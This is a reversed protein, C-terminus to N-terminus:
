FNKKYLAKSQAQIDKPSNPRDADSDGKFLVLSSSSKEFHIQVNEQVFPEFYTPIITKGNHEKKNFGIDLFIKDNVGECLCDIYEYNRLYMLKEFADGAKGLKEIDGIFDILSLIKRDEHSMERMIVLGLLSKSHALLKYTKYNFIPNEFYRRKIYHGSKYPLNDSIKLSYLENKIESFNYIEKLYLDTPSKAKEITDEIFDPVAIKFDKFNENLMYYHSMVGVHRNFFKKVLPLWTKSNTGIGCYTVPETFQLMRRMTELGLFPVKNEPHTKSFVGCIHLKKKNTSYPIFGQISQLKNTHKSKAIVFNLNKKSTGHEYLFFEKDNGLIHNERWYQRIFTMIEELDSRQAVRFEFYSSFKDSEKM